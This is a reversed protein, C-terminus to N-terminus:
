KLLEQSCVNSLSNHFLQYEAVRSGQCPKCMHGLRCIEHKILCPTNTMLGAAFGIWEIFIVGLLGNGLFLLVLGAEGNSHGDVDRSQRRWYRDDSLSFTGNRDWAYAVPGTRSSAVGMESGATSWWSRVGDHWAFWGTMLRVFPRVVSKTLVIKKLIAIERVLAPVPRPPIITILPVEIPRSCYSAPSDM